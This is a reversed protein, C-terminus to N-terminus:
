SQHINWSLELDQRLSHLVSCYTNKSLQVAREVHKTSVDGQVFIDLDVGTFFKPPSEKRRALARVRVDEPGSRMKKLIMLIDIAMCACLSGLLAETPSPGETNNGDLVFHVDKQTTAEFRLKDTWKVEIQM